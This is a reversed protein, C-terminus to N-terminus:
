TVGQGSGSGKAPDARGIVEPGSLGAGSVLRREVQYLPRGKAEIFIKGIYEGAVGIALLQLGGLLYIPIVTSAWGPVTGPGWIAAVLAWTGLALAIVFVVMGLGSIVRLPLISFSTLGRLSLSLMRSLSYKTEGGMRRGRSYYVKDSRLGLLPVIGRLYLNAERYEGLFTVARRSMLRFDAHDRVTDVGMANLLSYHARASLRKFLSDHERSDRVGYVIENGALYADLMTEIVGIDDQLDADLSVLADGEAEMLGAYLAHQHGYNRSLKIGAFLADSAVLEQILQWTGDQSGDDVFYIRSEACVRGGDILRRMEAALRRASDALIQEENYCPVVFGLVPQAAEQTL